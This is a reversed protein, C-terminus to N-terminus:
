NRSGESLTSVGRLRPNSNLWVQLGEPNLKVEVVTAEGPELTVVLLKCGARDEAMYVIVSEHHGRNSSRVQLFPKWGHDGSNRIADALDQPAHSDLDLNEFVALDLHKVGTPRAVFAAVNVLGFFPVHVPRANFRESIARVIDDFGREAGQAAASCVMCLATVMLAAKMRNTKGM